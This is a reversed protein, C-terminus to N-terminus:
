IDFYDLSVGEPSATIAWGKTEWDGLVWRTGQACSHQDPRHTHGHILTSVHHERMRKDVESPTVDMIDQAKNSNSEKSMARLKSAFARREDLSHSLLQAQWQPDRATKRFAQYEEDATCLSDGHMVLTPEGYLDIVSPDPLLTGGVADCFKQGLLFDRNGQMLYLRPGAESFKALLDRIEAALPSDDDDGLWVEFLDGLIYLCDCDRNQQLFGALARTIEPRAPDLHLDSIFCTTSV